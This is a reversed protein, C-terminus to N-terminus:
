RVPGRNVRKLQLVTRHGEELTSQRVLRRNSDYWLEVPAPPGTVRYHRSPCESDGVRLRTKGLYELRGPIDRGTDADLLDVAGPRQGPALRWYSTSWVGPRTVRERGNVRVRLGNGEGMAIVEFRKGDDNCSSELHTLRGDQYTETGDYSYRYNYFVIRARVRARGTMVLTHKGRPTITMRYWGATKGDVQVGFDRIESNPATQGSSVQPPEEPESESCAPVLFALSGLVLVGGWLAQRNRRNASRMM